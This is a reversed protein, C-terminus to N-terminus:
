KWGITQLTINKNKYLIYFAKLFVILRVIQVRNFMNDSDKRTPFKRRILIQWPEYQEVYPKFPVKYNPDLIKKEIYSIPCEGVIIWSITPITIIGISILSITVMTNKDYLNFLITFIMYWLILVTVIHLCRLGYLQLIENQSLKLEQIKIRPVNSYYSYITLAISIIVCILLGNYISIYM